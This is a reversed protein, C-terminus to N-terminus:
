GGFEKILAQLRMLCGKKGINPYQPRSNIEEQIEKIVVTLKDKLQCLEQEISLYEKKYYNERILTRDLTIGLEAIRSRLAPVCTCHVEDGACKEDIINKYTEKLSQLEYTREGLRDQYRKKCAKWDEVEKKLEEIRLKAKNLEERNYDGFKEQMILLDEIRKDKEQCELIKKALIPQAIDHMRNFGNVYTDSKLLPENDLNVLKESLEGEAQNLINEYYKITGKACALDEKLGEITEKIDKTM